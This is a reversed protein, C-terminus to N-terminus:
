MNEEIKRKILLDLAEELSEFREIYDQTSSVPNNDYFNPFTERYAALFNELDKQNYEKDLNTKLEKAHNTINHGYQKSDLDSRIQELEKRLKDPTRSSM